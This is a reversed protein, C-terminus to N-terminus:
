DPNTLEFGTLSITEVTNKQTKKFLFLRKQFGMVLHNPTDSESKCISDYKCELSLHMQWAQFLYASSLTLLVSHWRSCFNSLFLIVIRSVQYHKSLVEKQKKILRHGQDHNQMQGQWKASVQKRTSKHNTAKKGCQKVIESNLKIWWM